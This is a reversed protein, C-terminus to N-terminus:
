TRKWDSLGVVNRSWVCSLQICTNANMAIYNVESLLVDKVPRVNTLVDQQQHCACHRLAWRRCGLLQQRFFLTLLIWLAISKCNGLAFTPNM